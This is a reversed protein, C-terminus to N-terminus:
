KRKLLNAFLIFISLGLFFLGWINSYTDYPLTSEGYTYVITTINGTVTETKGNQFQVGDLIIFVSLILMWLGAIIGFIKSNEKINAAMLFIFLLIWILIMEIYM